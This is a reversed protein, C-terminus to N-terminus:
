VVCICPHMGLTYCGAARGVGSMVDFVHDVRILALWAGVCTSWSKKKKEKEQACWLCDVTRCTTFIDIFCM